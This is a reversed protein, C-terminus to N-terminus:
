PRPSPGGRRGDADVDQPRRDLRQDARAGVIERWQQALQADQQRFRVSHISRTPIEVKAGRRGTARDGQRRGRHLGDALLQSGDLLEVWVAPKDAPKAASFEVAM